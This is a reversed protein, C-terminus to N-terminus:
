RRLQLGRWVQAVSSVPAATRTAQVKPARVHLAPATADSPPTPELEGNVREDLERQAIASEAV